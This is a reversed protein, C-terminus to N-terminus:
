SKQFFNRKKGYDLFFNLM